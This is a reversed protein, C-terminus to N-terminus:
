EDECEAEHSFCILVALVNRGGGDSIGCGESRERWCEWCDGAMEMGSGKREKAGAGPTENELLIGEKVLKLASWGPLAQSVAESSSAWCLVM